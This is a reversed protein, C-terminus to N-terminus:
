SDRSPRSAERTTPSSGAACSSRSTPTTPSTSARPERRLRGQRGLGARDPAVGAGDRLRGRAPGDGRGRRVAGVVAPDAVGGVSPDALVAERAVLGGFSHGVVHVPGARFVGSSRWCTPPWSPCPTPSRRTTPQGRPRTSGASTTPSSGGGPTRRAAGAGRRLGGQEGHVRPRPRGHGAARRRGPRPGLAAFRGRPTDLPTTRTGEPPALFPPTSVPPLIPPAGGTWRRGAGQSSHGSHGGGEGDDVLLAADRLGGGDDREAGGQGLEPVAHQEDVEVGLGAQGERDPEVGLRELERDM